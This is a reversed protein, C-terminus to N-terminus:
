RATRCRGPGLVDSASGATTIGIKKGELESIQTIKSNTKVMLYWGYYGLAAGGVAKTM